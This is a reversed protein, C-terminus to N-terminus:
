HYSGAEGRSIWGFFSRFAKSKKQAERKRAAIEEAQRITLGCLRHNEEAIGVGNIDFTGSLERLRDFDRDTRAHEFYTEVAFRQLMPSTQSQAIEAVRLAVPLNPAITASEKGFLIEFDSASIHAYHALIKPLEFATRLRSDCRPASMNANNDRIRLAILEDPLVAINFGALAMRVWMDFDQLNTFRRDYLGAAEYAERRIMATPACLINHHFFFFRLWTRRSFDPFGLVQDFPNFAEKPEGGDGVPRPMAFLLSVDQHTDLFDVQM